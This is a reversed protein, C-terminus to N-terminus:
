SDWNRKVKAIVTHPIKSSESFAKRAYKVVSRPLSTTVGAEELAMEAAFAEEIPHSPDAGQRLRKDHWQQTAKHTGPRTERIIKYVVHYVEEALTKKSSYGPHYMTFKIRGSDRDVSTSGEMAYPTDQKKQENAWQTGNSQIAIERSVSPSNDDFVLMADRKLWNVKKIKDVMTELGKPARLGYKWEGRLDQKPYVIPMEPKNEMQALRAKQETWSPWVIDINPKTNDPRRDSTIRAVAQADEKQMQAWLEQVITMATPKHKTAVGWKRIGKLQAALQPEYQQIKEWEQRQLRQATKLDKTATKEGESVMRRRFRRQPIWWFYGGPNNKLLSGPLRDKEGEPVLAISKEGKKPLWYYRGNNLYVTGPLTQQARQSIQKSYTDRKQWLVTAYDNLMKRAERWAHKLTDRNRASQHYLTLFADQGKANAVEIIKELQSQSTCSRDSKSNNQKGMLEIALAEIIRYPLDGSLRKTGKYWGCQYLQRERGFAKVIESEIGEPLCNRDIDIAIQELDGRKNKACPLNHTNYIAKDHAEAMHENEPRYRSRHQGRLSESTRWNAFAQRAAGNPGFLVAQPLTIGHNAAYDEYYDLDAGSNPARLRELANIYGSNIFEDVLGDANQPVNMHSRVFTKFKHSAQSYKKEDGLVNELESIFRTQRSDAGHVKSIQEKLGPDGDTGVSYYTNRHNEADAM